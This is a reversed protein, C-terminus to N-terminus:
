LYINVSFFHINGNKVYHFNASFKVLLMFKGFASYKGCRTSKNRSYSRDSFSSIENWYVFNHQFEPLSLFLHKRAIKPFNVIGNRISNRKNEGIELDVKQQRFVLYTFVEEFQKGYVLLFNSFKHCNLLVLCMKKRWNTYARSSRINSPSNTGWKRVTFHVSTSYLRIRNNYHTQYYIQMSAVCWGFYKTRFSLSSHNTRLLHARRRKKKEKM